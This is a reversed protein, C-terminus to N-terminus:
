IAGVDDETPSSLSILSDHTGALTELQKTPERVSRLSRVSTAETAAARVSLESLESLEGPEDGPLSGRRQERKARNASNEALSYFTTPSGPGDRRPEEERLIVPPTAQLLEAIAADLQDKSLKGHFCDANIQRRSKRGDALFEVIRLATSAVERQLLEAAGSRFIFRVSDTWFRVWAFGADIHRPEIHMSGDTLAFIMALRLLVPARRELLGSILPGFDYRNLEGRYLADYRKAAGPSLSMPTVDKDVWRHAGAIRLVEAVRGALRDVEGNPTPQPFSLLQERDAYITLFRNAFGNSLERAQILSVLETPTVAASLSIHPDTASIRNSKTAPKITVGDWCDRLAASLTNGDRKTQQLVNAFESEIIWLRKDHIPEVPKKGEMFGDHILFALGERSSRGGRHVHPAREPWNERVAKDIRHVVSVADGKRGRGSRGVHLAFLRPHHFTNGIPLYPGRGFCCGLWTLANLAVAFRNAETTASGAAAIEGVLGYLCAADPTPANRHHDVDDDDCRIPTRARVAKSTAEVRNPDIRRM